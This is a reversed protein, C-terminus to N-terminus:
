EATLYLSIRDFKDVPFGDIKKLEELEQIEAVEDRYEFIKKPLEYDL